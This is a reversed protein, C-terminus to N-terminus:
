VHILLIDNFHELANASHQFDLSLVRKLYPGIKGTGSGQLSHLLIQAFNNIRPFQALHLSDALGQGFLNFGKM